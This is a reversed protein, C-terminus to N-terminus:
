KAEKNDSATIDDTSIHIIDNATIDAMSIHM